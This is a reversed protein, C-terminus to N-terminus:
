ANAPIPSLAIQFQGGRSTRVCNLRSGVPDSAREACERPGENRTRHTRTRRHTRSDCFAKSVSHCLVLRHYTVFVLSDRRGTSLSLGNMDRIGTM